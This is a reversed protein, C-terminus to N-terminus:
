RLVLRGIVKITTMVFYTIAASAIFVGIIFGIAEGITDGMFTESIVWNLVLWTVVSGLIMAVAIRARIRIEKRIGILLRFMELEEDELQKNAAELQIVLQKLQDQNEKTHSKSKVSEVQQKLIAHKEKYKNLQKEQDIAVKQMGNKLTSEIKDYMKFIFFRNKSSRVVKHEKQLLFSVEKKNEDASDKINFSVYRGGCDQILDRLDTPAQELEEEITVNCGEFEGDERAFVIITNRDFHFFM